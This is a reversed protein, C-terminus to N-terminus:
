DKVTIDFYDKLFEKITTHNEGIDRDFAVVMYVNGPENKMEVFAVDTPIENDTLNFRILIAPSDYKKEKQLFGLGFQKTYILRLKYKEAEEFTNKLLEGQIAADRIQIKKNMKITTRYFYLNRVTLKKEYFLIGNAYIENTIEHIKKTFIEEPIIHEMKMVSFSLKNKNAIVFNLIGYDNYEWSLIMYNNTVGLNIKDAIIQISNEQDNHTKYRSSSSKLFAIFLVGFVVILAIIALFGQM